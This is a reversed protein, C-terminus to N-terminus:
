SLDNAFAHIYNIQFSLNDTFGKSKPYFNPWPWKISKQL